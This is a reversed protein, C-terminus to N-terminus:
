CTTHNDSILRQALDKIKMIANFDTEGGRRGRSINQPIPIFLFFHVFMFFINFFKSTLCPLHHHM